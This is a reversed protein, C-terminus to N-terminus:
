EIGTCFPGLKGKFLSFPYKHSQLTTPIINRNAILNLLLSSRHTCKRCVEKAWSRLASRLANVCGGRQYQPDKWFGGCEIGKGGTGFKTCASLSLNWLMCFNEFSFLLLIHHLSCMAWLCEYEFCQVFKNWNNKGEKVFCTAIKGGPDMQAHCSTM